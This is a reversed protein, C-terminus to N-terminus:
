HGSPRVELGCLFGPYSCPVSSLTQCHPLKPDERKRM